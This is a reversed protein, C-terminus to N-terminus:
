SAGPPEHERLGDIEHRMLANEQALVKIQNTLDSIKMSFQVCVLMLFILAGLFLTSTARAAGIFRTLSVLWEYKFTFLFLGVATLLWLWSYEERLSRRRVLEIIVLLIITSIAYAFLQQKVPM